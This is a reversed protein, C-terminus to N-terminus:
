SRNWGWKSREPFHSICATISFVNLVCTFLDSFFTHMRPVVLRSSVEDEALIDDIDYYNGM